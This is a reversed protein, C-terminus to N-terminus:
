SSVETGLGWENVRLTVTTDGAKISWGGGTRTVNLSQEPGSHADTRLIVMGLDGPTLDAYDNLTAGNMGTANILVALPNGPERSLTSVADSVHGPRPSKMRYVPGGHVLPLSSSGAAVVVVRHHQALSGLLLTFFDQSNAADVVWVSTGDSLSPTGQGLIGPEPMRHVLGSAGGPAAVTTSHASAEPSRFWFFAVGALILLLIGGIVYLTKDDKAATGGDANPFTVNPGRAPQDSGGAFPEGVAGPTGPQETGEGSPAAASPDIPQGTPQGNDGAGTELTVMGEYRTIVLDRATVEAPWSVEGVDESKGALSLSVQFTEGETMSSGSFNFDGAGVDPAEGNDLLVITTAVGEENTLTAEVPSGVAEGGTTLRVVIGTSASATSLMFLSAGILAFLRMFMTPELTVRILRDRGPLYAQINYAEHIRLSQGHRYISPVSSM